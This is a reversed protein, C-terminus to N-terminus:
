KISPFGCTWSFQVFVKVVFAWCRFRFVSILGVGEAIVAASNFFITKCTLAKTLDAMCKCAHPTSPEVLFNDQGGEVKRTCKSYSIEYSTVRKVRELTLLYKYLTMVDFSGGQEPNLSAMDVQIPTKDGLPDWKLPVAPDDPQLETM